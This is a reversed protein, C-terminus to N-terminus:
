LFAPDPGSAHSFAVDAATLAAAHVRFEDLTGAFYPDATFHSRGLYCSTDTIASLAGLFAVSGAPAGDVYISMLDNTDDVVVTFHRVGATVVTGNAFVQGSSGMSSTFSVRSPGATGTARPTVFIYTGTGSAAPEGFDFIRQWYSHTSTDDTPMWDVWAEFTANTLGDLCGAPLAVHQQNPDMDGPFFGGALTLTGTGSLMVGTGVAIGHATGKSDTVTTGTGDFSYRHVLSNKLPLCRAEAVGCGCAEPSTKEPDDECEDFCDPTGDSDTDTDAVGCGCTGPDIKMGDAPCCDGMPCGGDDGGEGAMGVIGGTASGGKGAATGGTGASGGSSKGGSGGAAGAAGGSGKGSM